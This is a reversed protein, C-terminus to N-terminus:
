LYPLREKMLKMLLSRLEARAARDLPALFADEVAATAEVARALAKQGSPTLTIAYRRRDDPDRERAVLRREELTDVVGVILTPDIGIRRSLEQQSLPADAAYTLVLFERPNLQMAALAAEMERTAHIGAKMLLYGATTTVKM